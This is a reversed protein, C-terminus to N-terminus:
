VALLLMWITELGKLDVYPYKPGDSHRKQSRWLDDPPRKQSRKKFRSYQVVRQINSRPCGLIM